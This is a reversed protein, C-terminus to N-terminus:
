LKIGLYKPSLGRLQQFGVDFCDAFDVHKTFGTMFITPIRFCLTESESCRGSKFKVVSDIHQKYEAIQM